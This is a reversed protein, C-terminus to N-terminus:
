ELSWWGWSWRQPLPSGRVGDKGDGGDEEESPNDALTTIPIAMRLTARSTLLFSSSVFFISVVNRKWRRRIGFTFVKHFHYNIQKFTEINKDIKLTDSKSIQFTRTKRLRLVKCHVVAVIAAVFRLVVTLEHRSTVVVEVCWIM